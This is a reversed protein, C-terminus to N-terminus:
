VRLSSKIEISYFHNQHISIHIDANKVFLRCVGFAALRKDHKSTLM